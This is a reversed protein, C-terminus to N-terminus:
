KGGGESKGAAGTEAAGTDAAGGAKAHDAVADKGSLAKGVFSLSHELNDLMKRSSWAHGGEDVPRWVFRHGNKKMAAALRQNPEFFGYHDDTGADFYIQLGKLDAPTRRAILGMPMQEAWKDKDIPDGLQERLGGRLYRAVVNEAMGELETPDAPLVASSHAAVAGFVDPHRLALKLAGFGGASMGMIARLQPKGGVRFRKEITAVLDKVLLDEIDGIGEGNMYTTRSRRGPARFIVLAMEPIKGATRLADLTRAGGRSQFDDPGGFGPCWLVWPYKRNTRRTEEHDHTKPVYISYSASGTRSRDSDFEWTEYYFNEMEPPQGRRAQGCLTPGALGVFLLLLVLGLLPRHPHPRSAVTTRM